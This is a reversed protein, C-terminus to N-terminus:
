VKWSPSSMRRLYRLVRLTNPGPKFCHSHARLLRVMLSSSQPLRKRRSLQFRNNDNSAFMRDRRQIRQNEDQAACFRVRKRVARRLQCKENYLTGDAPSGAERWAQHALRSKAGLSTLTTDKWRPKKKHQLLPLSRMATVSVCVCLGGGGGGWVCM